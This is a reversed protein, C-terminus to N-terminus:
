DIYDELGKKEVLWMPVTFRNKGNYLTQSKPLAEWVEEGRSDVEGFWVMYALETPKRPEGVLVVDEDEGRAMQKKEKRTEKQPKSQVVRQRFNPNSLSKAHPNRPPKFKM